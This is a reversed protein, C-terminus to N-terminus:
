KILVWTGDAIYRQVEVDRYTVSESNWHIVCIGDMSAGVTYVPYDSDACVFQEGRINDIISVQEVVEEMDEENLDELWTSFDQEFDGQNDNMVESIYRKFNNQTEFSSWGKKTCADILNQPVKVQITM